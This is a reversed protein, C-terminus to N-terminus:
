HLISELVSITRLSRFHPLHNQFFLLFYSLIRKRDERNIAIEAVSKMNEAQNLRSMIAADESSIIPPAVVEHHTFRGETLDLYPQGNQYNGLLQYGSLKGVGILFYLPLNALQHPPFTDLQNLFQYSFDYLDEQPNESSLFLYLVEVAFLVICNKSVSERISLYHFAPQFEKAIQLNKHPNHYIVMDLISGPFILQAQSNKSKSTRLGKMMFSLLGFQHTFISTILSTEGYKISKLVIAQTQQLLSM